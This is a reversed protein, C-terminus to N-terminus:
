FELLTIGSGQMDWDDLVQSSDQAPQLIHDPVQYSFNTVSLIEPEAAQITVRKSAKRQSQIEAKVPPPNIMVQFEQYSIKGDGDKDAYRFMSEIDEESVQIDDCYETDNYTDRCSVEEPLNSMIHFFNKKTIFHDHLKYKKAKFKSPFPETGCLMQLSSLIINYRTVLRVKFMNQRFVEEDDQRFKNLITKCFDPFYIFGNKVINNTLDIVEQEMPNLGLMKM